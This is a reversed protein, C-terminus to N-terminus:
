HLGPAGAPSLFASGPWSDVWVSPWLSFGSGPPQQLAALAIGPSVAHALLTPLSDCGARGGSLRFVWPPTCAQIQVAAALHAPRGAESCADSTRVDDLLFRVDATVWALFARRRRLPVFSILAM